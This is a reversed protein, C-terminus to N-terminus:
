NFDVKVHRINLQSVDVAIKTFVPALISRQTGASIYVRDPRNAYMNGMYDGPLNQDSRQTPDRSFLKWGHSLFDIVGM